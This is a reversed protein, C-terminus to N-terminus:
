LEFAVVLKNDAEGNGGANAGGDDNADGHAALHLAIGVVVFTVGLGLLVGQFLSLRQALGLFGSLEKAQESTLSGTEDVWYIPMAKGVSCEPCAFALLGEDVIFNAQLRKHAAITVGSLQEVAIWTQYEPSEETTTSELQSYREMEPNWTSINAVLSAAGNVFYPQSLAIHPSIGDLMKRDMLGDVNTSGGVADFQVGVFKKINDASSSLAAPELEYQTTETKGVMYSSDSRVLNLDQYAQSVFVPLLEDRLHDQKGALKERWAKLSVSPSSAGDYGSIRM